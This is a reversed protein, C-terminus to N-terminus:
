LRQGGRRGGAGCGQRGREHAEELPLPSKACRWIQPGRLFREDRTPVAGRRDATEGGVTPSRGLSDVPHEALPAVSHEGLPAM